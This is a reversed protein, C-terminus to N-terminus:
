AFRSEDRNTVFGGGPLRLELKTADRQKNSPAPSCHGCLEEARKGDADRMAVSAGKSLLCRVADPKAWLSALM